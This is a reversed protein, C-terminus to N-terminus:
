SLPKKFRAISIKSIAIGFGIITAPLIMDLYRYQYFVMVCAILNFSLSISIPLVLEDIRRHKVSLYFFTILSIWFMMSIVPLVIFSYYNKIIYDASNNTNIIPKMKEANNDDTCQIYKYYGEYSPQIKYFSLTCMSYKKIQSYTITEVKINANQLIENTIKELRFNTLKPGYTYDMFEWILYGTNGRYKPEFCKSFNVKYSVGENDNILCDKSFRSIFNPNDNLFFNLEKLLLNTQENNKHLVKTVKDSLIIHKFFYFTGTDRKFNSIFYNLLQIPNKLYFEIIAESILDDNIIKNKSYIKKRLIKYGYINPQSLLLDVSNNSSYLKLLYKKPIIESNGEQIDNILPNLEKEYKLKLPYMYEKEFGSNIYINFFLNNKIYSVNNKLDKHDPTSLINITFNIIFNILIFATFVSIIKYNIKKEYLLIFILYIIFLIIAQPRILTLMLISFGLLIGSYNKKNGLIYKSISYLNLILLFKFLHETMIIKSSFMPILTAIFFITIYFAIKINYIKLTEYFILCMIISMMSQIILTSAIQGFGFLGGIKGFFWIFFPYGATRVGLVNPNVENFDFLRTYEIYSPSDCLFGVNIFLIWIIQFLAALSIIKIYNINIKRLM